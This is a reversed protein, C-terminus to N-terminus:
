RRRAASAHKGRRGATDCMQLLHGPPGGSGQCIPAPDAARCGPSARGAVTVDHRAASCASMTALVQDTAATLRFAGLRSSLWAGFRRAAAPGAMRIGGAM